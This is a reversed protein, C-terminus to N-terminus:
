IEVKQNESDREELLVFNLLEKRCIPCTSNNLLWTRLCDFHFTHYCPTIFIDNTIEEKINKVFASYIRDMETMGKLNFFRVICELLHKLKCVKLEMMSEQLRHQYILKLLKSKTTARRPYFGRDIGNDVYFSETWVKSAVTHIWCAPNHPLRYYTEESVSPQDNHTILLLSRSYFDKGFVTEYLKFLQKEEESFRNHAMVVIILSFGIRYNFLVEYIGSIKQEITFRPDTFGITDLLIHNGNYYAYVNDTCGDVLNIDGVKAPGELDKKSVGDRLLANIASSKGVKSGGVVIIRQKEKIDGISLLLPNNNNINTNNNNISVSNNNNNNINNINIEQNLLARSNSNGM